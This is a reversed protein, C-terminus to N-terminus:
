YRKIVLVSSMAAGFVGWGVMYLLGGIYSGTLDIIFGVMMPSAASIGSSVGSMIGSGTGTAKGPVLQQLLSWSCPTAMALMGVGCSILVAAAVNSQAYAGLYIFIAAGLLGVAMFRAPYGLRDTAHGAMFKVVVAMIFPLVLLAGMAAWSFGRAEKLYSPLWTLVGWYISGIGSYALVLLGFRYDYIVALINQRFGVKDSEKETLRENHLEAEIYDREAQSIGRHQHPHDTTHKWILYFPIVGFGALLFFTMRWGVVPLLWTLLPMAIMPAVNLGSLWTANAKGRENAPFWNKVFSSQMPYHLAEGLGLLVRSLLLMVFSGAVGGWILAITWTFISLLMTKRPGMWDGLPSLVVNGLGYFVLFITMLSGKALPDNAIGMTALFSNDVVLMSVNVRDIYAVMLTILLILALQHRIHTTKKEAGSINLTNLFDSM